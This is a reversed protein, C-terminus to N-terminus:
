GASRPLFPGYRAFEAVDQDIRVILSGILDVLRRRADAVSDCRSAWLMCVVNLCMADM